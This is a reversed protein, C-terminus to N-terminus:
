PVLGYSRFENLCRLPILLDSQCIRVRGNHEGRDTEFTYPWLYGEFSVESAGIRHDIADPSISYAGDIHACHLASLRLWSPIDRRMSCSDIATM